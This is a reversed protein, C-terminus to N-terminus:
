AFKDQTLLRNAAIHSLSIAREKALWADLKSTRHCNAPDGESCMMAVQRDNGLANLEDMAIVLKRSRIGVNGLGGPVEFWRYDIGANNV